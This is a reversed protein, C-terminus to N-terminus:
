IYGAVKYAVFGVWEKVLKHWVAIAEVRPVVFADVHYDRPYTYFDTAFSDMQLGVKRYCALSRRMHFASTILLCDSGRLMIQDLMKKVELASEHTNRTENEIIIDADPVGMLLMVKRYKNAEPEPEGRLRGSGGSILIKGILGDKYLQVTHTVRDAGKLFYVRDDPFRHMTTGTLVIGLKYKKLSAIPKAEVEWATMVENAVFDNSFFLLLSLGTIFFIKKRKQHKTIAAYILMGCVITLPM